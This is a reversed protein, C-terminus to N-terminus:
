TRGWSQKGEDISLPHICKAYHLRDLWRFPTGIQQKIVTSAERHVIINTDLLVRM